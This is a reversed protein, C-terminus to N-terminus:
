PVGPDSQPESSRPAGIGSLGSELTWVRSLRWLQASPASATRTGCSDVRSAKRRWTLSEYGVHSLRRCFPDCSTGSSRADERAQLGPLESTVHICSTSEIARGCSRPAILNCTGFTCEWTSRLHARRILVCTYPLYLDSVTARSCRQASKSRRYSM